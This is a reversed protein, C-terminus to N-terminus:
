VKFQMSCTLLKTSYDDTREGFDGISEDLNRRRGKLNRQRREGAAAPRRMRSRQDGNQQSYNM